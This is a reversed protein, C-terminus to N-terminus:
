GDSDGQFEIAVVGDQDAITNDYRVCHPNLVIGTRKSTTAGFITAKTDLALGIRDPELEVHERSVIGDYPVEVDLQDSIDYLTDWELILTCDIPPYAIRDFAQELTSLEVPGVLRNEANYHIETIDEFFSM